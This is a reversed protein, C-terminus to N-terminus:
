RSITKCAMQISAMLAEMDQLEADKRTQELMFMPLTVAAPARSVAGSRLSPSLAEASTSCLWWLFLVGRGLLMAALWM